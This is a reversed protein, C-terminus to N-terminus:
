SLLKKIEKKFGPLDNKVTNWIELADIGFYEHILFNRMDSVVQWPIHSHKEKFDEPMATTTEGINELKKAVADQVLQSNLFDKYELDKTYDEIAEINELISGLFFDIKDSKDM